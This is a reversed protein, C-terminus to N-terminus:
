VGPQLGFIEPLDGPTRHAKLRAYPETRPAHVQPGLDTSSGRQCTIIGTAKRSWNASAGGQPRACWSTAIGFDKSSSRSETREWASWWRAHVTFVRARRTGESILFSRPYRM